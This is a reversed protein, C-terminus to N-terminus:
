MMEGNALKFRRKCSNCTQFNDLGENLNDSDCIPCNTKCHYNSFDFSKKIQCGITINPVLFIIFLLIAKSLDDITDNIITKKKKLSTNSEFEKDKSSSHKNGM